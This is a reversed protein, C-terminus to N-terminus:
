LLASSVGAETLRSGSSSQLVNKVIIALEFFVFQLLIHRYQQMFYSRLKGLTILLHVMVTTYVLFLLGYIVDYLWTALVGM